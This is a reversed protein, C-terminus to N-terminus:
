RLEPVRQFLIECNDCSEPYCVPTYYHNGDLNPANALINQNSLSTPAINGINRIIRLEVSEESGDVGRDYLVCSLVVNKAEKYGYNVLRISFIIQNQNNANVNYDAPFFDVLAKEEQIPECRPCIKEECEPCIKEEYEPCVKEEYEAQCGVFLLLISLLCICKMARTIDFDM